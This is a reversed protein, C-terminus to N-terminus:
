LKKRLVVYGDVDIVTNTMDVGISLYDGTAFDVSTPIVVATNTGPDRTDTWEPTINGSKHVSIITSGPATFCSYSVQEVRFPFGLNLQVQSFAMSLTDTEAFFDLFSLANTVLAGRFPWLFTSAAVWTSTTPTVTDVQIFGEGSTSWAVQGAIVGDDSGMLKLNTLTDVYQPVIPNDPNISLIQGKGNVTITGRGIQYTGAQLGTWAAGGGGSPFQMM